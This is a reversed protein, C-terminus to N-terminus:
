KEELVSIKWSSIQIKLYVTSFIKNEIRRPVKEHDFKKKKWLLRQSIIYNVHKREYFGYPLSLFYIEIGKRYKPM